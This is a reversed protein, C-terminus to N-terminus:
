QKLEYLKSVEDGSLARNYFRINDLHGNYYLPDSGPRRGILYGEFASNARMRDGNQTEILNGDLYLRQNGSGIILTLMHWNGDFLDFIPPSSLNVSFLSLRGSNNYYVRHNNNFYLVNTSFNSRVSSNFLYMIKDKTNTKVWFNFTAYTFGRVINLPFQFYDGEAAKFEMSFGSTNPIDTSRQPGYNFGNFDGVMDTPTTEGDDFTYYAVLGNSVAFFSKVEIAFDGQWKRGYVDEIEVEIPITENIPTNSAISIDVDRTEEDDKLITGYFVENPSFLSVYPSSTKYRVKVGEADSEGNGNRLTVGYTVKEGPNAEGTGNEDDTVLVGQLGLNPPPPTKIMSVQITADGGNSGVDINSAYNGLTVLDRNVFVDVRQNNVGSAPTITIWDPVAETNWQLNSNGTNTINFSLQDTDAGFDLIEPDVTLVPEAAVFMKVDVFQDGGNSTFSLRGKFEGPQATRFVQINITTQQGEELDGNNRSLGIWSQDTALNWNLTGKGTNSINIPLSNTNNGFDLVTTSITLQPKNLNPVTLQVDVQDAGGNSNFIISGNYNGPALSARDVTIEIPDIQGGVVTGSNTSLTLWSKTSRATYSISGSACNQVNITASSNQTGLVVDKPSVCLASSVAINVTISINGGNSNINIVQKFPGPPLAGRDVIVNVPKIQSATNTGETPNVTIWGVNEVVEWELIGMGANTIELPIIENKDGFDLTTPRVQLVPTTPVLQINQKLVTGNEIEIAVEQSEFGDKVALLTYVGQKAGVFSYNGNDDTLTTSPSPGKLSLNVGIIAIGSEKNTVIGEVGGLQSMTVNGVTSQGETVQFDRTAQAYGEKSFELTYVGPSLPKTKYNGNEDSLLADGGLVTVTAGVLPTISESETIKGSIHGMPTLAFTVPEANNELVPVNRVESIYGDVAVRVEYDGVPVETFTFSGDAKTNTSKFAAGPTGRLLVVEANTIPDDTLKNVVKGNIRALLPEDEDGNCASLLCFGALVICSALYCLRLTLLQKKM